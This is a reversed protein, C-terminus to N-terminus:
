RALLKHKVTLLHKLEDSAFKGWMEPIAERALGQEQQTRASYALRMASLDLDSPQRNVSAFCPSKEGALYAQPEFAYHMVSLKDYTSFDYSRRRPANQLRDFNARMQAESEWQYTSRIYDFNWGCDTPSAPSQHEHELGLAHGFEHAVIGEFEGQAPSSETFGGLNMSTSHRVSEVGVYSWYGGGPAFDIKIDASDDPACNAAKDFSVADFDLRGHSLDGIPWLRRAAEAVRARLQPSGGRFCITLKRPVPWKQANNLVSRTRFDSAPTAALAAAIAPSASTREKAAHGRIDHAAASSAALFAVAIAAIRLTM